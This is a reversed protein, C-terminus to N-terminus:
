GLTAMHEGFGEGQVGFVGVDDVSGQLAQRTLVADSFGERNEVIHLLTADRDVGSSEGREEEGAGIPLKKGETTLDMYMDPDIAELRVLINESLQNIHVGRTPGM